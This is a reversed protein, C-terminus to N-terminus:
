KEIRRRRAPQKSGRKSNELPKEGSDQILRIRREEITIMRKRYLAGIANKYQKKSVGFLRYITEPSSKDSIDLTGGHEKLTSLVRKSLDDTAKAGSKHLSLDIKGDERIKKIFGKIEQGQKVIQFLENKYLVGVHTDNIIATYGLSTKEGIVLDVKQGEKFHVPQKEM